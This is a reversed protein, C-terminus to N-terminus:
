QRAGPWGPHLEQDWLQEVIRAVGRSLHDRYTSFPLGLLEAAAEQSPAPRLYTRDIARHAKADRPDAALAAAATDIMEAVAAAGAGPGFRARASRSRALPNAALRDPRHRDRLARRVAARFEGASLVTAPAPGSVGAPVVLGSGDDLERDGMMAVFDEWGLRRWDHAFVVHHAGGSTFEAEPRRPYDIYRFLPELEPSRFGAVFDWALGATEMTHLVHAVSFGEWAPSPGEGAGRGDVVFRAMTVAEGPRPPGHDAWFRAAARTGPDGAIDEPSARDLRLFATFGVVEGEVRFALFAEPQRDLWHRVMRVEDAAEHRGALAVVLDHDAAAVPGIGVAGLGSWDFRPAMVPNLRHLFVLDTAAKRRARGESARIRGVIHARVRRHLGEYRVPDRWRGETDLVDRALDHPFLGYRGEEVFSLSRLWGLLGAPDDDGLAAGLLDETTFRAHACVALADRHRRDPVDGAFRDVLMRLVDPADVLTIPGGDGAPRQALVDVVLSLALPHGHTLAVLRDHRSADVDRLELYHRADDGSFNGLPVVRAVAQWGPESRWSAPPPNRSAVVVFADAPLDAVFRGWFWPALAEAREFTDVLVALPGAAHEGVETSFRDLLASSTPEITHMDLRVVRVGATAAEAAIGGLLITKGVGGPGHVHLVSFEREPGALASRVLAVEADRGVFWRDAARRSRGGLTGTSGPAGGVEAPRGSWVVPARPDPEYCCAVGFTVTARLVDAIAPDADDVADIARKIAKSVSSRAREAPDAFSRPRGRLGTASELEDVLADLELRLREARAIDNDAEAEAVDAALERARAAYAERADADLVDQRSPSRPALGRSALALAPVPRGPRTLLEALYRMGVLDPVRVRRGDLALEWRTGDPRITGPRPGSRRIAGGASARRESVQEM